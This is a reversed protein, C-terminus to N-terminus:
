KKKEMRVSSVVAYILTIIVIAAILYFLWDWGTVSQIGNLVFITGLLSFVIGSQRYYPKKDMKEREEETAYLHANNFLIGKERFQFYSIIYAAAAFLLCIITGVMKM